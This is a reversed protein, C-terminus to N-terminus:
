RMCRRAYNTAMPGSSAAAIKNELDTILTELESLNVSTFTRGAIQYSQGSVSCVAAAQRYLALRDADSYDFAAVLKTAM